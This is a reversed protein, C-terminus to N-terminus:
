PWRGLACAPGSRRVAGTSNRRWPTIPVDSVIYIQSDIYSAEAGAQLAVEDELPSSAGPQVLVQTESRYLPELGQSVFGAAIAALLALVIIPFYQEM